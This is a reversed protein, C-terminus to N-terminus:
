ILLILKINNTLKCIATQDLNESLFKRKKRCLWVDYLAKELQNNDLLM